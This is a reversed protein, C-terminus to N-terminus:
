HKQENIIKHVTAVSCNMDKAIARYSKDQLKLMKVRAKQEETFMEKRGAGCENKLKNVCNNRKLEEIEKLLKQITDRDRKITDDKSKTNIENLRIIAKLKEIEKVMQHYISNNEFKDDPIMQMQSIKNHLEVNIKNQENLRKELDTIIVELGKITKRAVIVVWENM